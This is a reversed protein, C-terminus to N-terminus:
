LLFEGPQILTVAKSLALQGNRPEFLTLIPEVGDLMGAHKLLASGIGRRREANRVLVYQLVRAGRVKASAVWGLIRDSDTLGCAVSVVTRPDDLLRNVIANNAHDHLQGLARVWSQACYAQDSARGPRILWTM